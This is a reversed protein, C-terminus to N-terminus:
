GQPVLDHPYENWERGDLLRGGAKPTFGGWQKWFFAVSYDACMDRLEIAWSEEPPRFGPGSEGGGILWHIGSLDLGHLSGLLPEASIFRM